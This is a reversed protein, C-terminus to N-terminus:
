GFLSTEATNVESPFEWVLLQPGCWEIEARGEQKM